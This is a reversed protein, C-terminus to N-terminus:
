SLPGMAAAEQAVHEHLVRKLFQRLRESRPNRLVEAPPGEEAVLGNDFFVTRTSVERAFGIEHTVILMTMGEAALAAILALVEGVLEPDLASTVEDFLKARPEMALARVIAVRQQQGGSLRLPYADRKDTLGIRALLADARDVAKKRPMGLVRMPAEVVNELVTKHPWLNYSQFVMGIRTRLRRLEAASTQRGRRDGLDFAIGDFEIRGSDPVELLNACRLFTSKGSGSAGIISVVEGAQVDISIGKLVQIEGFSKRLDRIRLLPEAM